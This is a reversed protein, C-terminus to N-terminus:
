ILVQGSRVSILWLLLAREMLYPSHNPPIYCAGCSNQSQIHSSNYIAKSSTGLGKIWPMESKLPFCCHSLSLEAQQLVSTGSSCSPILSHSSSWGGFSSLLSPCFAKWIEFALTQETRVGRQSLEGNETCCLQVTSCGWINTQRPQQKLLLFSKVSVGKKVALYTFYVCSPSRARNRLWYRESTYNWFCSLKLEETKKHAKLTDQGPLCSSESTSSHLWPVQLLRPERSLQGLHRHSCLMGWGWLGVSMRVKILLAPNELTCGAVEETTESFPLPQETRMGSLKCLVEPVSNKVPAEM